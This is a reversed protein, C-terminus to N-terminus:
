PAWFVNVPTRDQHLLGSVPYATEDAKARELVRMKEDGFVLLVISDSDLLASLTLSM